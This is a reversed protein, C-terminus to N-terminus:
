YRQLNKMSRRQHLTQNKQNIILKGELRFGGEGWGGEMSGIRLSAGFNILYDFIILSSQNKDSSGCETGVIM